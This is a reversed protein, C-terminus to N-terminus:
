ELPFHPGSRLVHAFMATHAWLGRLEAVHLFAVLAHQQVKDEAAFRPLTSFLSVFLSLSVHVCDFPQVDGLIASVPLLGYRCM